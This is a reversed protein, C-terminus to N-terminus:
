KVPLILYFTAGGGPTDQFGTKGNLMKSLEEAISLGLGFNSKDAHSKDACYFRNFIYPKDKEDIGQGHDIVYFRVEKNTVDAKIEIGKNAKSHHVANDLFVSLIQFVRERDTYLAPYSADSIDLNLPIQESICVPEYAEYLSILLTDIDVESRKLTWTKADSSALLLMDKILESMRMCESDMVKVSQEIERIGDTLDAIKEVNALIVALPSKLEHSATAVFEKQSKLVQETPKFARKLILNSVWWVGIGALFWIGLYFPLSKVASSIGSKQKWLLSLRYVEDDKSVITVPIGWYRGNESDTLENIGGQLTSTVNGFQPSEQTSTREEMDNILKDKDKILASDGQYLLEGKSNRLTCVISYQDEYEHIIKEYENMNDELQYTLLTTIRLFFSSDNNKEMNINNVCIVSLIITIILMMSTVFFVHLKRYLKNLM